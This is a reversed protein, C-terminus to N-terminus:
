RTAACCRRPRATTSSRSAAGEGAGQRRVHRRRRQAAGRRRDGRRARRARHRHQRRRRLTATSLKFPEKFALQIREAIRTAREHDGRDLLVAFEDGGLRAPLDSTRLCARLRRTFAVLLEDGIEHGFRDNVRKFDDLDLFLVVARGDPRGLAAEVQQTFLARNALGTLPDHHARHELRDRDETLEWVAQELRDHELSVATHNALTELLTLDHPPSSPSAARATPSRSRASCRRSAPWRRWCCSAAATDRMWRELVPRARDRSLLRARQEVARRLARPCRARTPSWSRPSATSRRDRDAARPRRRRPLPLGRRGRRPVGRAGQDAARDARGGVTPARHVTRTVDYLFELSRHRSREQVYARYALFMVVAPGLLLWAARPDALLVAVGALALCTNAITVLGDAVSCRACSAGRGGAGRRAVHRARDARRRRAHRDAHRRARRGVGGARGRRHRPMLAGFVTISLAGVLAFQALNFATRMPIHRRDLLLVVGPGVIGALMLASPDALFLGAVLPVEALSLSLASHRFNVHVVFVEAAAFALALAWWPLRLDGGAASSIACSWCM